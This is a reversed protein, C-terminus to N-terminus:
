PFWQQNCLISNMEVYNSLLQYMIKELIKSFCPLVSIPRDNNFERMDSSKHVPTVLSTKLEDPIEGTKFSCNVINLDALPRSITVSVRKVRKTNIGDIGCNSKNEM